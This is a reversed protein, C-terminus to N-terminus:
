ELHRRNMSRTGLMVGWSLISKNSANFGLL